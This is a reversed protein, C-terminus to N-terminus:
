VVEQSPKESAVAHSSSCSNTQLTARYSVMVATPRLAFPFINLSRRAKKLAISPM